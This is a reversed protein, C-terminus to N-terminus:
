ELIVFISEIEFLELNFNRSFNRNILFNGTNTKELMKYQIQQM